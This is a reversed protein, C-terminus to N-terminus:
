LFQRSLLLLAFGIMASAAIQGIRRRWHHSIRQRLRMVIVVLLLWWCASGSFVGVVLLLTGSSNGSLGLASIFALFSLITAPNSLTLLFTGAFMHWGSYDKVKLQLNYRQNLLSQVGLGMLLLAGVLSLWQQSATLWLTIATLGLGAVLGYIADACAAGLGTLLGAAQGHNLTRQICLMGIPGVPVAVLVGLLLGQLFVSM